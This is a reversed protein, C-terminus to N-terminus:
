VWPDFGYTHGIAAVAPRRRAYEIAVLGLTAFLMLWPLLQNATFGTFATTGGSGSTGSSTGGNGGNGGSNNTGGITIQLTDADNAGNPDAQDASVISATNKLTGSSAQVTVTLVITAASSAPITAISFLKSSSRRDATARIGSSCPTCSVYKLGNALVDKLVVNTADAPGANSVQVAIQIQDGQNPKNNDVATLVDLDSVAAAITLDVSATNNAPTPDTQAATVTVTNTITTLTTAPDVIADFTASVSTPSSSSTAKAVTPINWTWTNGSVAATGASPTTPPTVPTLDTPLVDTVVVSTADTAIDPNTVTVTYTVTGGPAATTPAVAIAVGLDVPLAGVVFTDTATDNSANADLTSATTSATNAVSAGAVASASLTAPVTVTVMTGSPITAWNCAIATTTPAPACTSIGSPVSSVTVTGFTINAPANDTLTVNTADSAGIDHITITYTLAGGPTTVGTHTKTVALNADEVATNAVPGATPGPTNDTVVSVTNSATGVSGATVNVTITMTEAGAMAPATCVYPGTGVCPVNGPTGSLVFSPAVGAVANALTGTVTVTTDATADNTVVVTYSYAAGPLVAPASSTNAIVPNDAFAPLAFLTSILSALMMAAM